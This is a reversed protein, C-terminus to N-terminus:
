AEIVKVFDVPNLGAGGILFGHLYDLEKLEAVNSAKVSGGYVFKVKEEFYTSSCIMSVARKIVRYAEELDDMAVVSGSGIAWVPEYAIIIKKKCLNDVKSLAQKVQDILVTDRRGEKKQENTEGVCLIPVLNNKLAMKMKENIMKDTEGLLGRRESHGIIVYQCGVDKLMKASVEGTLAGNERGAVNQASLGIKNKGIEKKASALFPYSPALIMEVNKFKKGRIKKVFSVVLSQSM